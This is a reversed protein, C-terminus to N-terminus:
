AHRHRERCRRRDVASSVLDLPVDDSFAGQTEGALLQGALALGVFVDEARDSLARLSDIRYSSAMGPGISPTRTTSSPTQTAPGAAPPIRLSQPASTTLISGGSPSGARVNALIRPPSKGVLGGNSSSLRPLRLMTSSREESSPRAVASSSISLASTKRVLM